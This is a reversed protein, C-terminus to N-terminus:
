VNTERNGRTEFILAALARAMWGNCWRLLTFRKRYLRTQQYFFKGRGSYMNEIAWNAIKRALGPYLDTHRSFTIIGGAAGHIDHPYDKDSMWRPAGDDNFLERAYFDLGKFYAERGSWDGTVTMCRWIADLIFGTHYNDHRIHSDSPPDTYYWAGYETQQQLVYTLLRRGAHRLEDDDTRTAYQLTVSAILISVDMVRMTMPVPMYGICLETETEKLKPLDNLLFQVTSGAVELYRAEGTVEHARLFSEAVFCTVVANPLSTRAYFGMDQWPYAYGWCSGRWDGESRIKLLLDLLAQAEDLYRTEGDACYLDLYSMAFLALGKPNYVKPVLLLPRLNVPFRMVTQIALIRTWKHWGFLAKLLPSNLADHKNYGRMGQGKSWLLTQQLVDRYQDDSGEYDRSM